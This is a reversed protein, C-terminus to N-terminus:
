RGRDDRSQRKSQITPTNSTPTSPDDADTVLRAMKLLTSRTNSDMSTRSLDNQIEVLLSKRESDSAKRVRMCLKERVLEDKEVVAQLVIEVLRMPSTAAVVNSPTVSPAATNRATSIIWAESRSIRRPIERSPTTPRRPPIPATNAITPLPQSEIAPKVNERLRAVEIELESQRYTQNRQLVTMAFAAHELKDLLIMRLRPSGSAARKRWEAVATRASDINWGWQDLGHRAFNCSRHLPHNEDVHRVLRATDIDASWASHQALTRDIKRIATAARTDEDIREIDLNRRAVRTLLGARRLATRKPGEHRQPTVSIGLSEYSGAHLLRIPARRDRDAAALIVDNTVEEYRNRLAAIWESGRCNRAKKNAFEPYLNEISGFKVVPRDFWVIHVHINRPDSGSEVDPRHIVAWFGLENEEFIKVFRAVIERRDEPTLWHPLEADLRFQLIADARKENKSVADWFALRVDLTKGLNGFSIPGFKDREVEERRSIENLKAREIYIQFSKAEQVAHANSRGHLQSARRLVALPHAMAAGEATKLFAHDKPLTFARCRWNRTAGLARLRGVEKKTPSLLIHTGRRVNEPIKPLAARSVQGVHLHFPARGVDTLAGLKLSRLRAYLVPDSSVKVTQRSRPKGFSPLVFAKGPAQQRSLLGLEDTKGEELRGQWLKEWESKEDEKTM